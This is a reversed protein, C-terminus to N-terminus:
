YGFIVIKWVFTDHVHWHGGYDFVVDVPVKLVRNKNAFLWKSAVTQQFGQPLGSLKPFFQFIVFVLGGVGPISGPGGPHFGPIRAMLGRPVLQYFHDKLLLHKLMSRM